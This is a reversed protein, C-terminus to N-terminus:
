SKYGSSRVKGITYFKKALKFTINTNIKSKMAIIRLSINTYQISPLRFLFEKNSKNKLISQLREPLSLLPYKRAATFLWLSQDSVTRINNGSLQIIEAYNLGTHCSLIFADRVIEHSHTLSVNSLKYLDEPTLQPHQKHEVLLKLMSDPLLINFKKHENQLISLILHVQDEGEISNLSLFDHLQTPFNDPLATISIDPIGYTIHCFRPIMQVAKLQFKYQAYTISKGIQLLANHHSRCIVEYLTSSYSHSIFQKKLEQATIRKGHLKAEKYLRFLTSSIADMKKKVSPTNKINYCSSENTQTDSFVQDKLTIRFRTGNVSASLRLYYQGSSIAPVQRFSVRLDGIM